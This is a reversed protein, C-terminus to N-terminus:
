KSFGTNTRRNGNVNGSHNLNTESNRLEVNQLNSINIFTSPIPIASSSPTPINSSSNSNSKNNTRLPSQIVSPVVEISSTEIVAVAPERPPPSSSQNREDNESGNVNRDDENFQVWKKASTSSTTQLDSSSQNASTLQSDPSSSHKKDTPESEM